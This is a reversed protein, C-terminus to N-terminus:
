EKPKEEVRQWFEKDIEETTQKPKDFKKREKPPCRPILAEEIITKAMWESFQEYASCFIENIGNSM